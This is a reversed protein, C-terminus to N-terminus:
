QFPKCRAVKASLTRMSPPRTPFAPFSSFPESPTTRRMHFSFPRSIKSFRLFTLVRSRVTETTRRDEPEEPPAEESVSALGDLRRRAEGRKGKAVEVNRVKLERQEGTIALVAHDGNTEGQGAVHAGHGTSAGETGGRELTKM